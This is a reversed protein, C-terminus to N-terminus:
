RRSDYWVHAFIAVSFQKCSARLFEDRDAQTVFRFAKVAVQLCLPRTFGSSLTLIM